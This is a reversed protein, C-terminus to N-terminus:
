KKPFDRKFHKSHRPSLLIANCSPFNINLETNPETKINKYSGM